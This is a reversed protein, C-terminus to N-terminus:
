RSLKNFIKMEEEAEKTKGLQNYVVSLNHHSQAHNYDLELNKKLLTCAIEPKKINLYCTALDCRVNVNKKDVVLAKEYYIIANEYEEADYYVNGLTIIVESNKPDKRYIKLLHDIAKDFKKDAYYNTALALRLETNSSDKLLVNEYYAFSDATFSEISDHSNKKSNATNHQQNSNCSSISFVFCIIIIAGSLFKNVM